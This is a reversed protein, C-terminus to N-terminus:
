IVLCTCVLRISNFLYSLGICFGAGIRRRRCWRLSWWLSPLCIVVDGSSSASGDSILLKESRWLLKGSAFGNSNFSDSRSLMDESVHDFELVSMGARSHHRPLFDSSGTEMWLGLMSYVMKWRDCAYVVMQAYEQVVCGEQEVMIDSGIGYYRPCLLLISVGCPIVAEAEVVGDLFRLAASGLFRCVCSAMLESVGGHLVGGTHSQLQLLNIQRPAAGEV